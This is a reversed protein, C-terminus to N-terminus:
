TIHMYPSAKGIFSIIFSKKLAKVKTFGQGVIVIIRNSGKSSQRSDQTHAREKASHSIRRCGLDLSSHVCLLRRSYISDMTVCDVSDSTITFSIDRCTRLRVDLTNM